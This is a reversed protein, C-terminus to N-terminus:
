PAHEGRWAHRCQAGNQFAKCPESCELALDHVLSRNRTSRWWLGVSSYDIQGAMALIDSGWAALLPGYEKEALGIRMRSLRSDNEIVAPRNSQFSFSYQLDNEPSKTEPSIGYASPSKFIASQHFLAFRNFIFIVKHTRELYQDATDLDSKLSNVSATPFAHICSLIVFIDAKLLHEVAEVGGTVGRGRGTVKSMDAATAQDFTEMGFLIETCGADKMLQLTAADLNASAIM